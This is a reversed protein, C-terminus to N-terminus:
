RHIEDYRYFFFLLNRNPNVPFFTDTNRTPTPEKTRVNKNYHVITIEDDDMKEEREKTRTYKDRITKKKKDIRRWVHFHRGVDTSVCRFDYSSLVVVVVVRCYCIFIMMMM